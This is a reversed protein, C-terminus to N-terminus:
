KLEWKAILVINSNVPSDFDYEIDNLYWGVFNYGYRVPEIPKVANDGKKVYITHVDSGMNKNFIVAYKVSSTTTTVTTSVKTTTIKKTTALRKTTTTTTTTSGDECDDLCGLYTYSTNAEDGCVLTTELEYGKSKKIIKIYSMSGDCVKNNVSLEDIKKGKILEDLSVKISDGSKKPLNDNGFYSSGVDKLKSVNDKFSNSYDNKDKKGIPFFWLVIFLILFIIVLKIILGKVNFKNEKKEEYM